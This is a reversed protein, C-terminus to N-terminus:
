EDSTRRSLRRRLRQLLTPRGGRGDRRGDGAREYGSGDPVPDRLRVGDIETTLRHSHMPIPDPMQKGWLRERVSRIAARLKEGPEGRFEAPSLLRMGARELAYLRLYLASPDLGEAAAAEELGTLHRLVADLSSAWVGFEGPASRYPEPLFSQTWHFRWTGPEDPAFRVRWRYRGLYEAEVRHVAGSPSEFQWPVTQREAPGTLIWTDALEAEFVDGLELPDPMALLRLQFWEGSPEFPFTARRWSGADNGTGECVQIAPADAGAEAEFTAAWSGGGAPQRPLECVRGHELLVQHTVSEVESPSSWELALSPRRAVNRSDGHEGSYLNFFCGPTDEQADTLKVLLLIPKGEQIREAAYRALSPSEFVIDSQGPRWVAAALAHAGTDAAPDADSACGAGPLGWAEQGHSAERWWVEGPKPVSVNNEHEGGRGPNWDRRVPYILLRLPREPGEEVRVTMRCSHLEFDVPLTIGDWRHLVRFLEVEGYRPNYFEDTRGLRVHIQSAQNWGWIFGGDLFGRIDNDTMGCYDPGNVYTSRHVTRGSAGGGAEFRSLRLRGECPPWPARPRPAESGDSRKFDRGFGPETENM